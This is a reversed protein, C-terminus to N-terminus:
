HTYKEFILGGNGCQEEDSHDLCDYKGDCVDQEQICRSRDCSVLGQSNCDPFDPYFLFSVFMVIFCMMNGIVFVHEIVCRRLLSWEAHKVPLFIHFLQCICTGLKIYCLRLAKCILKYLFCFPM